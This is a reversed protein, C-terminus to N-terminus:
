QARGCGRVEQQPHELAAANTIPLPCVPACPRARAAERCTSTANLSVSSCSIVSAYSLVMWMQSMRVKLNNWVM